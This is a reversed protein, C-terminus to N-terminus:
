CSPVCKCCMPKCCGGLLSARVVYSRARSSAQIKRMLACLEGLHSSLTRVQHYALPSTCAAALRRRLVGASEAQQGFSAGRTTMHQLLEAENGSGVEPHQHLFGSRVAQSNVPSAVPSTAPSGSFCPSSTDVASSAALAPSNSDRLGATPSPPLEAAARAWLTQRGLPARRPPTQM